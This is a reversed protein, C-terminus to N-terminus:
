ANILCLKIYVSLSSPLRAAMQFVPRDTVSLHSLPIASSQTLGVSLSLPLLSLCCSLFLCVSVILSLPQSLCHSFDPRFTVCVSLFLVSTSRSMTLIPDLIVSVLVLDTPLVHKQCTQHFANDPDNYRLKVFLWMYVCGGM